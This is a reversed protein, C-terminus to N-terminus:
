YEYAIPTIVVSDVTSDKSVSSIFDFALTVDSMPVRPKRTGDGDQLKGLHLNTVKIHKFRLDNRLVRGFSDMAGKLVVYLTNTSFRYGTGVTSCINVIRPNKSRSMLPVIKKTLIMTGAVTSNVESEIDHVATSALSGISGGSAINILMDVKSCEKEIQRTISLIDATRSLDGILLHKRPGQRM